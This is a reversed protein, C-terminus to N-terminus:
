LYRVVASFGEMGDGPNTVAFTLVDSQVVLDRNLPIYAVKHGAPITITSSGLATIVPTGSIRLECATDTTGAVTLTITIFVLHFTGGLNIEESVIPTTIAGDKSFSVKQSGININEIRSAPTAPSTTETRGNLAGAVRRRVLREIESQREVVFNRFEIDFIARNEEDGSVTVGMVRADAVAGTEDPVSIIDGPDFDIFPVAAGAPPVVRAATSVQAGKTADMVITAISKADDLSQVGGIELYAEYRGNAAISAPDTVETYGGDYRVLM